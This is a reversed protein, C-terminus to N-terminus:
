ADLLRMNMLEPEQLTLTSRLRSLARSLRSKVTGRRCNMAAAMEVESLDLVFRCALVLRDTEPLQEIAQSLQERLELKLVQSEVSDPFRTAPAGSVEAVAREHRRNASLRRRSENAVIRLLWPRFPSGRQFRSIARFGRIFAEQAADEASTYERTIVYATRFAIDQYREVLQEYAEVNGDSARHILEEEELPADEPLPIESTVVRAANM